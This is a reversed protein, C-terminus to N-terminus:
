KIEPRVFCGDAVPEYELVRTVAELNIPGYIHPFLEQPKDTGPEMRVEPKLRTPDLALLVLGTQGAFWTNAVVAIQEMLSCHVFGETELSAARYEGAQCAANWAENTTLHLILNM